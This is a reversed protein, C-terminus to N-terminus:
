AALSSWTVHRQGILSLLQQHTKRSLESLPMKSVMGRGSGETRGGPVHVTSTSTALIFVLHQLAGAPCLFPARGPRPSWWAPGGVM